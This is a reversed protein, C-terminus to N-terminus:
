QVVMKGKRDGMKWIYIGPKLPIINITQAPETIAETLVIKGYIDYIKFEGKTNGNMIQIKESAPNPFINFKQERTLQM